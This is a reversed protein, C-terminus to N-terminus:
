SVGAGAGGAPSCPRRRSGGWSRRSAPRLGGGTRLAAAPSRSRQALPPGLHIRLPVAARAQGLDDLLHAAEGAEEAVLDHQGRDLVARPFRRRGTAPPPPAAARDGRTGRLRLQRGDLACVAVAARRASRPRRRHPPPRPWPRADDHEDAAVHHGHRGRRGRQGVEGPPDVAPRRAQVAGAEARPKARGVAVADPHQERGVELADAGADLSVIARRSSAM